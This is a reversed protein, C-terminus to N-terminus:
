SISNGVPSRGLRRTATPARIAAGPPTSGKTVVCRVYWGPPVATRSSWTRASAPNMASSAASGRVRRHDGSIEVGFRVGVLQAQEAAHEGCGRYGPQDKQVRPTVRRGAIRSGGPVAPTPNFSGLYPAARRDVPYPRGIMKGHDRVQGVSQRATSVSCPKMPGSPAGIGRRIHCSRRTVSGAVSRVWGASSANSGWTAFAHAGSGAGHQGPTRNASGPGPQNRAVPVRHTGGEYSLPYLL